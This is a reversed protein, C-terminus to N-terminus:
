IAGFCTVKSENEVKLLNANCHRFHQMYAVYDILDEFSINIFVIIVQVRRKNMMILCNTVILINFGCATSFCGSM